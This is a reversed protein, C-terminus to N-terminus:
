NMYVDVIMRREDLPFQVKITHIGDGEEDKIEEIYSNGEVYCEMIEHPHLEESWIKVNHDMLKMEQRGNLHHPEEMHIRALTMDEKEFFLSVMMNQKSDYFELVHFGISDKDYTKFSHDVDVFSMVTKYNQGLGISDFKIQAHITPASMVLAIM